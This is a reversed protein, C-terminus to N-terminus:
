GVVIEGETIEAKMLELAGGHAGRGSNIVGVNEESDKFIINKLKARLVRVEAKREYEFAENIVDERDKVIGKRSGEEAIKEGGVVWRDSDGV